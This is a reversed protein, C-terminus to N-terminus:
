VVDVFHSPVAGDFLPDRSMSDHKREDPKEFVRIRRSKELQKIHSSVTQEIFNDAVFEEMKQLGSKSYKLEMERKGKERAGEEFETLLKTDDNGLMKADPGQDMPLLFQNKGKLLEQKLKAREKRMSFQIARPRTMLSVTWWDFM